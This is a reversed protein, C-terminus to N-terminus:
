LLARHSLCPPGWHLIICGDEWLWDKLIFCLGPDLVAPPHPPQSYLMTSPGAYSSSASTSHIFSRLLFKITVLVTWQGDAEWTWEVVCTPLSLWHCNTMEVPETLLLVLGNGPEASFTGTSAKHPQQGTRGPPCKSLDNWNSASTVTSCVPVFGWTGFYPSQEKHSGTPTHDTNTGGLLHVFLCVIAFSTKTNWSSLINDCINRM